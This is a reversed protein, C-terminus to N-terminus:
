PNYYQNPKTLFQNLFVIVTSLVTIIEIWFFRMM